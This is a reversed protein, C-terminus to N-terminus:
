EDAEKGLKVESTEGKPIMVRRVNQASQSTDNRFLCFYHVIDDTECHNGGEGLFHSSM